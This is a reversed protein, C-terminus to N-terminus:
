GDLQVLQKLEPDDLLPAYGSSELKRMAIKGRVQREKRAIAKINNLVEALESRAPELAKLLGKRDTVFKSPIPKHKVVQLCSRYYSGSNTEGKRNIDITFSVRNKGDGDDLDAWNVIGDGAKAVLDFEPIARNWHTGKVERLVAKEVSKLSSEALKIESQLQKKREYLNVEYTAVYASVVDDMTVTIDTVMADFAVPLQKAM